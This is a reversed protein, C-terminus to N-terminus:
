VSAFRLPTRKGAHASSRLLYTFAIGYSISIFTRYYTRLKHMGRATYRAFKFEADEPIALSNSTEVQRYIHNELTLFIFHHKCISRTAEIELNRCVVPNVRSAVDSSRLIVVKM